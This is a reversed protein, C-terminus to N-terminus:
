EGGSSCPSVASARNIWNSPCFPSGLVRSCNVTSVPIAESSGLVMAALHSHANELVDPSCDGLEIDIQLWHRQPVGDSVSDGHAWMLPALHERQLRQRGAILGKAILHAM